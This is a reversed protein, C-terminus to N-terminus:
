VCTHGSSGSDSQCRQVISKPLLKKGQKGMLFTEACSERQTMRLFDSNTCSVPPLQITICWGPKLLSQSLLFEVDEFGIPVREENEWRGPLSDKGRDQSISTESFLPSTRIPYSFPSSQTGVVRYIKWFHPQIIHTPFIM